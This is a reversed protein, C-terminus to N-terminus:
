LYAIGLSLGLFIISELCSRGHSFIFQLADKQLDELHFDHATHLVLCAYKENINTTLFQKCEIKIVDLMYKESAYMLGYVNDARVEINNSNLPHCGPGYVAMHGKTGHVIQYIHYM